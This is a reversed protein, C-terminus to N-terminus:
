AELGRVLLLLRQFEANDSNGKWFNIFRCVVQLNGVEYHGDSDIRDVSPLLNKDADPGHFHFPIGTLACRNGQLDLLFALLKELEASTMRLEKNKVTRQIIQGYSNKVANEVSIRMEIISRERGGVIRGADKRGTNAGQEGDDDLRELLWCFSHADILRVNSLGDISALAKRVEGLAANFRQYNEWSCNRLTVLEIGLGRFARDFTTPQIPMFRGMDQLFYLYALLPYKAGTLEGLRDFTAGENAKGRYVGFLLQELEVRSKPSSVAELLARHDRNAHGFRNQWFCLNNTLTTRSDQIEIADIVHRLIAGSGISSESWGDFALIRLAHDRLHPKYGEWVGAVGEQFNTFANGKDNDAILRQFRAFQTQFRGPAQLATM